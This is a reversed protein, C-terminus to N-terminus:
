LPMGRQKLLQYRRALGDAGLDTLQEATPAVELDLSVKVTFQLLGTEDATARQVVAGGAPIAPLDELNLGFANVREFAQSSQAVGELTLTTGSADVSVSRLQVGQPTVRRLQELFASGSRVAVLQSVIQRTDKDLANSRATVSKLKSNLRRARQEVTAMRDVQAQLSQERVQALWQFAAVVLVLVLGIGSGLLVLGRAPRLPPPTPPLGLELRRDRLLDPRHNQM